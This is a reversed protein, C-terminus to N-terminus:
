GLIKKTGRGKTGTEKHLMMWATLLTGSMQHETFRVVTQLRSCLRPNWGLHITNAKILFVVMQICALQSRRSSVRLKGRQKKLIATRARWQTWFAREHRWCGQGRPGRQAGPGGAPVANSSLSSPSNLRAVVMADCPKVEGSSEPCCSTDEVVISWVHRWWSTRAHLSLLHEDRPVIIKHWFTFCPPDLGWGSANNSECSLPFFFFSCSLNKLGEATVAKISIILVRTEACSPALHKNLSTSFPNRAYFLLM